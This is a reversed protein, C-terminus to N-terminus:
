GNRRAELIKEVTNLVGDAEKRGAAVFVRHGLKRLHEIRRAQLPRLKEGLRKFEVLFTLGHSMYYTRDPFGRDEKNKHIVASPDIDLIQRNFYAEVKSELERGLM